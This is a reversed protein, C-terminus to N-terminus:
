NVSKLDKKNICTNLGLCKGKLKRQRRCIKNHQTKTKIRNFINSKGQSKREFLEM